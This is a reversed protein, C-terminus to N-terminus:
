RPHAGFGTKNEPANNKQRLTGRHPLYTAAVTGKFLVERAGLTAHLNPRKDKKHARVDTKSLVTMARTPMARM